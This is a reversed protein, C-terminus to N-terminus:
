RADTVVHDVVRAVGETERALEIARRHQAETNVHGEVTVVDGNTHVSLSTGKLTDDLAIKSKVKATRKTEELAANAEVTGAAIREGLRAGAERAREIREDAATGTTGVVPESRTPIGFSGWRYGLLLAGVVIVVAVLIILRLLIRFM